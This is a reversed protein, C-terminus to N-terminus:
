TADDDFPTPRSPDFERPPRSQAGVSTATVTAATVAAGAGAPSSGDAVGEARRGTGLGAADRVSEIEDRVPGVAEDLPELLAERVIRRPDYQRPDYQRWNIDEYEPGLQDKLQDKAGEAMIRAKRIGRALKAAYEPLKDPGLVFVAILVLIVFEWGNVGVM